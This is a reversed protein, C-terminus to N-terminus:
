YFMLGEIERFQLIEEWDETKIWAEHEHAINVLWPENSKFFCLDELLNPWVWDYLGDASELVLKKLPPQCDFYYVDAYHGFLQTGPWADQKRVAKVYPRLRELLAETAPTLSLQDRKVLIFEDCARFAMSILAQYAGARPEELIYIM